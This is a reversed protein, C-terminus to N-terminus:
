PTPELSKIEQRFSDLSRVENQFADPTADRLRQRIKGEELEVVEREVLTVKGGAQPVVYLTQKDPGKTVNFKGQAMGTVVLPGGAQPRELFVLVEEGPVFQATSHVITVTDGLRGGLVRVVVEQEGQGKLYETAALTVYTFVRGEVERAEIGKVQAYVIDESLRILDPLGLKLLTTALAGSGALTVLCFTLCLLLARAHTM